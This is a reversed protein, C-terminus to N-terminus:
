LPYVYEGQLKRFEARASLAEEMTKVDKVYGKGKVTVLVRFGKRYVTINKEGTKNDKRLRRNISNQSSTVNRLNHDQNDLTDHNIHDCEQGEKTQAIFRSM